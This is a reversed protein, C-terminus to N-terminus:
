LLQTVATLAMFLTAGRSQALEHLTGTLAAPVTFRHVAGASTRVPPRPHDTPLELVPVGALRERWYGVQGALVEGSFLERQWVAFDAYGVPLESWSGAGGAVAAAYGEGFERVVVGMSWGDTVLHHMVWVLVHSEPSERVVVVRVVPGSRLDFPQGVVDAVVRDREAGPDVAGSVDVWGVVVPAEEVPVVRQVGQGDVTDFVSRLVGHRAVVGAVAARVAGLDVPGVLRLGFGTHYEVGTPDFEHLFWLRQQASSLPVWQGERVVPTIPPLRRQRARVVRVALGAVTPATFVERVSVVVGLVARIRAVLRTAILSHGGLTFFDDHVGVRDLGLVEQWVQCLRAEVVSRPGVYGVGSEWVPEPLGARDVKGSATVPWVPVVMVVSPVMYEPVRGGVFERVGAGTVAGTVYGVIRDTGTTDTHVVVVAQEVGPCSRLVAEIEGLEIRFGRLVVQADSRGLHEVRGWRDWRAVDGTRYLRDGARSFPDAVFRHATVGPRDIYGRALGAGAVYVEGPVGVPVPRLGADLIHVRTGSIPTGVLVPLGTVEQALSDAAVESAGYLNLLRAGPLLAAFRTAVTAPLPEGSSVWCSVSAVAEPDAAIVDLVVALLSPVMTVREVRHARVLGVLGVPDKMETEDALVVRGGELLTGLIETASDLFSVSGRALVPVGRQEPYAQTFWAWRTMLGRHTGIVGKPRGTSGSTYIVYAARDPTVPATVEVLGRIVDAPGAGPETM